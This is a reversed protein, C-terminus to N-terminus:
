QVMEVPKIQDLKLVGMEIMWHIFENFNILGDGSKDVEAYCSGFEALAYGGAKCQEYLAEFQEKNLEGVRGTDYYTFLATLSM